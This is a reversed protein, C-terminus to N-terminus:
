LEEAIYMYHDSDFEITIFGDNEVEFNNNSLYKLNIFSKVRSVDIDIREGKVKWKNFKKRVFMYRKSAVFSVIDIKDAYDLLIPNICKSLINVSKYQQQILYSLTDSVFDTKPEIFKIEEQPVDIKKSYILDVKIGDSIFYDLNYIDTIISPSWELIQGLYENDLAFFDEVILAPEQNERVIHHSSM